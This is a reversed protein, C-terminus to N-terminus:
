EAFSNESARTLQAEAESFAYNNVATEFDALAGGAFLRRLEGQHAHIFDVAGPDSEALLSKLRAVTENIQEPSAVAAESQSAPQSITDNLAIRL